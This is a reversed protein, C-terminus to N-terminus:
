EASARGHSTCTRRHPIVWILPDHGGQATHPQPYLPRARRGLLRLRDALPGHDGTDPTGEHRRSVSTAIEVYVCQWEPESTANHRMEGSRVVDSTYPATARQAGRHTRGSAVAPQTQLKAHNHTTAESGRRLAWNQLDSPPKLEHPRSWQSTPVNTSELVTKSIVSKGIVTRSNLDPECNATRRRSAKRRRSPITCNV